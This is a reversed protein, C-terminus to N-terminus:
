QTIAINKEIAGQFESLGQEWSDPNNGPYANGWDEVTVKEANKQAALFYTHAQQREGTNLLALGYMNLLWANDPQYELGEVLLPKMEHFKGQAFYLWSLDVRSWPARPAVFIFTKFAEEGKKWDDPNDSSRAKYGYTLGIMYYVNPVTSGFFEMQSDFRELATDFAGEIFYTRGLQYWAHEHVSPDLAVAEEYYQQAKKIDYPGAPDDDHNFYYQGLQFLVDAKLADPIDLSDVGKSQQVITVAGALLVVLCFIVVNKWQFLIKFFM